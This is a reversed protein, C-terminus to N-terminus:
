ATVAEFQQTDGLRSLDAGLRAWEAEFDLPEWEIPVPHITRLEEFLLADVLQIAPVEISDDLPDSFVKRVEELEEVTWDPTQQARRFRDIFRRIM